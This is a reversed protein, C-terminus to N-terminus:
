YMLSIKYKVVNELDMSKRSKLVQRGYLLMTKLFDGRGAPHEVLSAM